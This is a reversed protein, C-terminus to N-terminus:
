EKPPEKFSQDPPSQQRAISQGIYVGIVGIVGGAVTDVLNLGDPNLHEGNFALAVFSAIVAVAVSAALIIAILGPPDTRPM